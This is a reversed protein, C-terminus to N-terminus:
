HLIAHANRNGLTAYPDTLVLLAQRSSRGPLYFLLSAETNMVVDPEEHILQEPLVFLRSGLFCSSHVTHSNKGKKKTPELEPVLM